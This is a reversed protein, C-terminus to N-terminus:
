TEPIHGTARAANMRRTRRFVSVCSAEPRPNRKRTVRREVNAEDGNHKDSLVFIDCTLGEM